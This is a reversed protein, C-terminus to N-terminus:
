RHGGGCGRAPGSCGWPREASQTGPRSGPARVHLVSEVWHVVPAARSGRGLKGCEQRSDTGRTGAWGKPAQCPGKLHSICILRTECPPFTLSTWTSSAWM